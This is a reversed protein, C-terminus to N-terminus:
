VVARGGDVSLTAGHINSADDSALFVVAAAVEDPANPRRSPMSAIFPALFEQMEMVKSTLTPGPAVTNVRVGSPGFEAGV